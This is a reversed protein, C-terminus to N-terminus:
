APPDDQETYPRVEGERVVVRSLTINLEQQYRKVLRLDQETIFTLAQGKAGARGTRGVRHLYSKSETPADLNFIHTLGKVDLGRAAVDSAIMVKSAGSRFTEMAHKREDRSALAHLNVTPVHHHNLKLAVIEALEVTHVFVMAREPKLAHWLKRLLEAKDRKECVLYFHEITPSVPQAAARIPLLDPAITAIAEAAEPRETASAFVLQRDRPSAKIIAQLPPLSEKSMLRDAEDIVLAKLQHAKLKGMTILDAVRGPSGVVIHPKKKLKELQRSMATGGILLLVRFPYGALQALEACERQIQIALEHTPAVIAVQTAELKRDMRAFLPLLYAFTKGTGTEATLYANKGERLVPYAASQIPTPETINRKALATILEEAVGLEQFNM